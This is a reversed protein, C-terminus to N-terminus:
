THNDQRQPSRPPPIIWDWIQLRVSESQPAPRDSHPESELMSSATSSKARPHLRLSGRCTFSQGRVMCPIPVGYMNTSM